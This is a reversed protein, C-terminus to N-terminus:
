RRRSRRTRLIVVAAGAFCGFSLATLLRVGTTAGLGSLIAAAVLLAIAIERGRKV